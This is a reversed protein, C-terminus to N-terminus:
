PRGRKFLFILFGGLLGKELLMGLWLGPSFLLNMGATPVPSTLTDKPFFGGATCTFPVSQGPWARRGPGSM